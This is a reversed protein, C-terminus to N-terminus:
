ERGEDSRSPNGGTMSVLMRAAHIRRDIEKEVIPLLWEIRGMGDAQACADLKQLFSKTVSGRLEVDRPEAM